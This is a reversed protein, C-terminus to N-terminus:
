RTAVDEVSSTRAPSRGCPAAAERRMNYFVVVVSLDVADAPAPHSSGPSAPESETAVPVTPGEVAASPMAWMVSNWDIRDMAHMSPWDPGGAEVLAAEVAPDATGGVVVVAGPSLRPPIAELAPGLSAGLREGFRALALQGM